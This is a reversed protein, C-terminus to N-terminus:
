EEGEDTIDEEPLEEKKNDPFAKKMSKDAMAIVAVGAALGVGVIRLLTGATKLGKKKSAKQKEEKKSKRMM